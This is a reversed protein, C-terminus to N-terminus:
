QYLEWRSVGLSPAQTWKVVLMPRLNPNTAYNSSYFGPLGRIWMTASTGVAPDQALKLGFNNLPNQVWDRTMQTVDWQIWTGLTAQSVIASSEPPAMDTPGRAGGYQWRELDQRAWYWNVEGAVAIRGDMDGGAGEGWNKLLRTAYLTQDAQCPQRSQFHYIRLVAADVTAM